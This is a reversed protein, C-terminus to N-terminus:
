EDILEDIISNFKRDFESYYIGTGPGNFYANVYRVYGQKDLIIMTPFANLEDIFPYPEAAELKNKRGALAMTYSTGLKNVLDQIRRMGYAVDNSDEYSLGLIEVGRDRNSNYWLTLYKTEDMSNACWTGFIQIILVKNQYKKDVPSAYSGDTTPFSFDLKYKKRDVQILEFPDILAADPNRVAQMPEWYGSQFYGIGRFSNEDSKTGNFVLAHGGDFGSLFIEDDIVSGQLYRYDGMTTMITGFIDDGLQSFKGLADYTTGNPYEFLIEWTGNFNEPKNKKPTKYRYSVDYEATFDIKSDPLYYKTWKGKMKNGSIKARIDSDFVHMPIIISDGEMRANDIVLREDANMLTITYKQNSNSEVIFNFPIQADGYDIVGRWTGESLSQTNGKYLIFIVLFSVFYGKLHFKTSNM